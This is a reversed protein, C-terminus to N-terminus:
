YSAIQIGYKPDFKVNSTMWKKLEDIDFQKSKIFKIYSPLESFNSERVIEADRYLEHAAAGSFIRQASSLHPSVVCLILGLTLTQFKKM